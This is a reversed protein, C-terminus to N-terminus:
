LNHAVSHIKKLDSETVMIVDDIKSLNWKHIFKSVDTIDM